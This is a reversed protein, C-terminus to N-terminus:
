TAAGSRRANWRAKMAERQAAIIGPIQAQQDPRLVGYVQQRIQSALDIRAEANAKETAVLDAYASGNPPTALLAERNERISKGLAQLQPRQQTMIDKIQAKQEATVNLQKLIRGYPLYGHHRFRHAHAHSRTPAAASTAGTADTDTTQAFSANAAGILLAAGIVPFFKRLSSM